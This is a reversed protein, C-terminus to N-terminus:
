SGIATRLSTIATTWQACTQTTEYLLMDTLSVFDRNELSSKIQRLQEAFGAILDSLTIKGVIIRALDIKMLQATGLLSEQANQWTTFCGSLKEMAKVNQNKQLLDAAESRLRNAEGLQSEVERLIDNAMQRPETTEIFVTHGHVASKRVDGLRKLDPEAGDILVHVVLRNEKKLHALVQGVTRLGLEETKLPAHDVTVSM